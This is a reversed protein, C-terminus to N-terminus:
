KGTSGFGGTGRKSKPLKTVEIPEIPTIQQGWIQFARDGVQYPAYQIPDALFQEKLRAKIKGLAGPQIKKYWSLDDYEALAANNLRTDLSDRHKYIVMLEGRYGKTDVIGVSNTLYYNHKHNSSRPHAFLSMLFDSACALGTGYVYEDLLEDYRVSTVTVDMGVDEGPHAYSPIVANKTLKKFQVKLTKKNAM